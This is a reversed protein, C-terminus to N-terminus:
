FSSSISATQVAIILVPPVIFPTCFSLLSLILDEKVYRLGGCLASLGMAFLAIAFMADVDIMYDRLGLDTAGGLAFRLFYGSFPSLIWFIFSMFAAGLAPAAVASYLTTDVSQFPTLQIQSRCHPCRTALPDIAKRCYPCDAM